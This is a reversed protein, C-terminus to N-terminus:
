KLANYDEELLKWIAEDGKSVLVKIYDDARMASGDCYCPVGIWTCKPPKKGIKVYKIKSFYNPDKPDLNKPKIMKTPHNIKQDEWQKKKAHYGVDYGMYPVGMIMMAGPKGERAWKDYTEPLYMGTGFSFHVAGKKGKLIMFIRVCGCGFNKKPDSHFKHYAPNIKVIRELKEKKM